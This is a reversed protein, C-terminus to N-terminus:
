EAKSSQLAAGPMGQGQLQANPPPRPAVGASRAGVGREGIELCRGAPGYIKPPKLVWRSGGKVIGPLADSRKCWDELGLVGRKSCRAETRERRARARFDGELEGTRPLLPACTCACAALERELRGRRKGEIGHIRRLRPRESRYSQRRCFVSTLCVISLHTNVSQNCTLMRADLNEWTLRGVCEPSLSPHMLAFPGNPFFSM